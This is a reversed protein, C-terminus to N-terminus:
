PGHAPKLTLGAIEGLSRGDTKRLGVAVWAVRVEAPDIQPWVRQHLEALDVSQRWWSGDAPGGHAIFRAFQGRRDVVGSDWAHNSWTVVLARDYPPLARARHEPQDVSPLPAVSRGGSFGIILRMPADDTLTEVPGSDPPLRRWDWGLLPREALPRELQRGVVANGPPTVLLMHDFSYTPYLGSITGGGFFGQAQQVSAPADIALALQDGFVELAGPEAASLRGSAAIALALGLALGRKAM